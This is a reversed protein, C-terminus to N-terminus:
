HQESEVVAGSANEVGRLDGCTLFIGQLDADVALFAAEFPGLLLGVRQKNLPEILGHLDVAGAGGPKRWNGFEVGAGRGAVGFSIEFGEGIKVAAERQGQGGAEVTSGRWYFRQIKGADFVADAAHGEDIVQDAAVATGRFPGVEGDLCFTIVVIFPGATNRACNRPSWGGNLPSAEM